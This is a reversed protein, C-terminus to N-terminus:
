GTGISMRWVSSGGMAPVNIMGTDERAGNAYTITLLVHTTGAQGPTFTATALGARADAAHTLDAKTIRGPPDNAALANLGTTDGGALAQLYCRALGAQEATADGHVHLPWSCSPTVVPLFATWSRHEFWVFGGGAVAICAAAVARRGWHITPKAPTRVPPPKM